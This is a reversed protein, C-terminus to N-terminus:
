RNASTNPTPEAKATTAVLSSTPRRMPIAGKSAVVPPNALGRQSSLHIIVVPEEEICAALDIESRRAPLRAM